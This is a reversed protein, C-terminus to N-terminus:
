GSLIKILYAIVFGSVFGDAFAWAAGILIGKATFEFGEYVYTILVLLPSAEGITVAVLAWVTLVVAWVFGAIFGIELPSM